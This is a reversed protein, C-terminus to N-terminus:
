SLREKYELYLDNGSSNNPWDYKTLFATKDLIKIDRKVQEGVETKEDKLFVINGGSLILVKTCSHIPQNGLYILTNGNSLDWKQEIMINEKNNINLNKLEMFLDSTNGLSFGKNEEEPEIQSYSTIQKILKKPDSTWQNMKNMLYKCGPLEWCKNIEEFLQKAKESKNIVIELCASCYIYDLIEPLFYHSGIKPEENKM